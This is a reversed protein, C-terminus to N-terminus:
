LNKQSKEWQASKLLPAYLDEQPSIIISQRQELSPPINTFVMRPAETTITMPIQENGEGMVFVASTALADVSNIQTMKLPQDYLDPKGIYSYLPEFGCWSLAIGTVGKRMMTTHSDTVLVGLKKINHKTRLHQWIIEASKWPDAPYVVYVNDANSEDIGASPILLGDKITLFVNYPNQDTKLLLDAEQKILEYKDIDTKKVCRGEIVSLVKSTIALISKEELNLIYQDLLAELSDGHMVRHTKIPKIHM